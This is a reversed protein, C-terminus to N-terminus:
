KKLVKKLASSVIREMVTYGEKNPHVGDPGYEKKLGKVEDVLASYYDVYICKNDKCYQKIWANLKIISDAPEVKPAWWFKNSPLVSGLLVKIRNAKALEVMSKINDEIMEVTSPGTNGAIDNTGCEIVVAQPHLDIVDQRFRVLMQPSTQGSIGRDLYHNNEFFDPSNNIWSDTISNGLFVVRGKPIPQTKLKENEVEYRKLQPWDQAQAVFAIVLCAILSLSKKYIRTKM